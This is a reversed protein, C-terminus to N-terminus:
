PRRDSVVEGQSRIVKLIRDSEYGPKEQSSPSSSETEPLLAARPRLRNKATLNKEKSVDPRRQNFPVEEPKKATYHGVEM